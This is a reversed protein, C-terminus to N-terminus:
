VARFERGAFIWKFDFEREFLDHRFFIELVRMMPQDQM